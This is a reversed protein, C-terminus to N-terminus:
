GLKYTVTKEKEETISYYKFVLANDAEWVLKLQDVMLYIDAQYIYDRDEEPVLDLIRTVKRTELDIVHINNAYRGMIYNKGMKMLDLTLGEQFENLDYKKILEGTQDNYIKIYRGKSIIIEDNEYDIRPGSMYSFSDEVKDIIKGDKIYFQTCTNGTGAAGQVMQSVSIIESGSKTIQIYISTDDAYENLTAIDAIVKKGKDTRVLLKKNVMDITYKSELNVTQTKSDWNVSLDLAEGVFRLPVYTTGEIMQAPVNLETEKGNIKAKDSDIILTIEKNGEIIDIKKSERDWNVTYGLYQSVTRLPLLVNGDVRKAEQELQMEEGNYSINILDKASCPIVMMSILGILTLRKITYKM